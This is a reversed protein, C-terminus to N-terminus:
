ELWCVQVTEGREYRREGPPFYALGNAAALGRVDSSGHTKLPEVSMGAPERSILAPQFAAREGHQAFPATLRAPLLELDTAPRGSMLDLALGVFLRFCVLGSVPNGPLGFVLKQPTGPRVGFWAPKGPKVSVKHFVQEVGAARLVGPVLDLVGASVGGSLVLMDARRLGEDVMRRLSDVDDRAIGLPLPVGGAHQICAVLMSENSNRIQGPGPKSGVPVLEDGTSVIAVKPRAVVKVRQRGVEALLGLEIPRLRHGPLLVRAGSRMNAGRLVVNQGSVLRRDDIRVRGLGAHPVAETREIMVVADAGAPMPAGTMIRAAQGAEVSRTPVAGAPIEESVALEGQGAPLDAARVAYGDVISKDHPPSDVDSAIEEALVRGLAQPCDCEEAPLQLTHRVIRRRAEDVDIIPEPM